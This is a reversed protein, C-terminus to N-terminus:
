FAVIGKEKLLHLANLLRADSELSGALLVAITAPAVLADCLKLPVPGLEDEPTPARVLRVTVSRDIPPRAGLEDRERVADMLLFDTSGAIAIAPEITRERRFSFTGSQWGIMRDFAKEAEVRTGGDLLVAGVIRGNEFFLHGVIGETHKLMLEGTKQLFMFLQLVDVVNGSEIAGSLAIHSNKTVLQKYKEHVETEATVDRLFILAGFANGQANELPIANIHFNKKEGGANLGAIEALRINKQASTAQKMVCNSKCISLGLLEYCPADKYRKSSMRVGAAQEFARNSYWVNFAKDVLFVPDSLSEAIERLMSLQAESGDFRM